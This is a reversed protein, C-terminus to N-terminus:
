FDATSTFLGVRLDKAQYIERGDVEMRADAIGMVLKQEMVRKVDIRYIVKKASPLVQGRFKVEGCGLARGRGPNGRWGLFFGVLQWMADLGLCGPMVPDGEFHCDFFWLSPDIDLEAVIEGKGYAGGESSIHVIRDMMLMNPLPLRANGEGFMEGHGCALLQDREFSNPQSM